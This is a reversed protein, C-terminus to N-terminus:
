REKQRSRRGKPDSRLQLIRQMAELTPQALGISLDGSEPDFHAAHTVGAKTNHLGYRDLLRLLTEEAVASYDVSAGDVQILQRVAELFHGAEAKKLGFRDEQTMERTLGSQDANIVKVRLPKAGMRWGALEPLLSSPEDEEDNDGANRRPLMGSEEEKWGHTDRIAHTLADRLKLLTGLVIVHSKTVMLKNLDGNADTRAKIPVIDEHDRYATVGLEQLVDYAVIEMMLQRSKRKDDARVSSGSSIPIKEAVEEPVSIEMYKDTTNGPPPADSIKWQGEKFQRELWQKIEHYYSEHHLEDIDIRRELKDGKFALGIHQRPSYYAHKLVGDADDEPFTMSQLSGSWGWNTNRDHNM